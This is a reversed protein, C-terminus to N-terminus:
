SQLRVHERRVMVEFESRATIYGFVYRKDVFGHLLEHGADWRNAFFEAVKRETSWSWGGDVCDGRWVEIVDPLLDFAPQDGMLLSAGPIHGETIALWDEVHQHINESDTWVDATVEAIATYDSRGLMEGLSFPTEDEHRGLVYDILAECRYPREHLFVVTHWDEAAEAKALAERKYAYARNAQGNIPLLDHVLPHAIMRMGISNKTLYPVLDEHLPAAMDKLVAKEHEEITSM